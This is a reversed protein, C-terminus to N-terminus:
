PFDPNMLNEAQSHFLHELHRSFLENSRASFLSYINAKCCVPYGALTTESHQMKRRKRGFSPGHKDRGRKKAPASRPNPVPFRRTADGLSRQMLVIDGLRDIKFCILRLTGVQRFGLAIHLEVSASKKPIV